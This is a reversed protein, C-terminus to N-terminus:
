NMIFVNVKLYDQDSLQRADSYLKLVENFNAKLNAHSQNTQGHFNLHTLQDTIDKAFDIMLWYVAVYFSLLPVFSYMEGCM